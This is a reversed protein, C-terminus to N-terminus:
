QNVEKPGDDLGYIVPKTQKPVSTDRSPIYKAAAVLAGLQKGFDSAAIQPFKQHVEAAEMSTRVHAIYGELSVPGVATQLAQLIKPNPPGSFEFALDSFFRDRISVAIGFRTLGASMAQPGAFMPSGIMWFECAAQRQAAIQALESLSGKMNIRRVAADVADIHGLLLSDGTLPVVKLGEVPAPVASNTVRGTVMVVIRNARVSVAVQEVDSLGDFIKQLDTANIGQQAGLQAVLDRAIPSNAIGNFNMGILADPFPDVFHWDIGGVVILAPAASAGQMRVGSPNGLSGRTVAAPASNSAPTQPQKKIAFDHGPCVPSGPNNFCYDQWSFKHQASLCTAWTLGLAAVTHLKM